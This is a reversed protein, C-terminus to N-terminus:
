LDQEIVRKFKNFYIDKAKELDMSVENISIKDGGISGLKTYPIRRSECLKEFNSLENSPVEVLARSLSESFLEKSDELSINAEIGKDGLVAMKAIAIALGGVNVDKASKLLDQKNAEIVTNWLNLEKAFNVDPHV